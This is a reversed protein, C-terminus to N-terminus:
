VFKQIKFVVELVTNLFLILNVFIDESLWAQFIVHLGNM